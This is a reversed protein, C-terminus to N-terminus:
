DLKRRLDGDFSFGDDLRRDLISATNIWDKAVRAILDRQGPDRAEISWLLCQQAFERMDATGLAV